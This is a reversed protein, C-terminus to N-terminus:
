PKRRLHSFADYAVAGFLACAFGRAFQGDFGFWVLIYFFVPPVACAAIFAGAFKAFRSM